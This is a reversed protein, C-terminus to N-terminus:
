LFGVFGLQHLYKLTHLKCAGKNLYVSSSFVPVEALFGTATLALLHRSDRWRKGREPGEPCERCIGLWRIKSM